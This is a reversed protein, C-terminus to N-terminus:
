RGILFSFIREPISLAALRKAAEHRELDQKYEQDVEELKATRAQDVLEYAKEFGAKDVPDIPYTMARQKGVPNDNEDM